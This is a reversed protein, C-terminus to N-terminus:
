YAPRCPMALRKRSCPLPAMVLLIALVAATTHPVNPALRHIALFVAHFLVHVVHDTTGPLALAKKIHGGFDSQAASARMMVPLYIVLSLFLLLLYPRLKDM